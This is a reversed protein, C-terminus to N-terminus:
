KIGEMRKILREARNPTQNYWKSDKMEKSAEVYDQNELAKIMNKFKLLGSVGLQYAMHYLIEWAEDKIDLHYLSSKVASKFKNLRYELLLEAETQALPLKTGYGITDFGLHDKYPEGRFGEEQKIDEVLSM